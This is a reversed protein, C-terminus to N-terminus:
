DGKQAVQLLLACYMFYIADGSDGDGIRQKTEMVAKMWFEAPDMGEDLLKRAGRVFHLVVDRWGALEADLRAITGPDLNSLGGSRDPM